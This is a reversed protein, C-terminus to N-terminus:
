IIAAAIPHTSEQELGAAIALLQDADSWGIARVEQVRPRGITLTGTKDLAVARMRALREIAQGGKFLVGGRAARAIAALTATPTSIIVACPSMVVLLTIATYLAGRIHGNSEPGVDRAFLPDGLVLWWVLLVAISVAMVGIAYPQSLRDIVRQVPE